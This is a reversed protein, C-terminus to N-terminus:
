TTVPLFSTKLWDNVAACYVAGKDRSISAQCWQCLYPAKVSFRITTLKTRDFLCGRIEQHLQLDPIHLSYLLMRQIVRLVIKRAMDPDSQSLPQLDTTGIVIGKRDLTNWAYLGGPLPLETIALNIGEPQSAGVQQNYRNMEEQFRDCFELRHETRFSRLTSESQSRGEWHRWGNAIGIEFFPQHRNQRVLLDVMEHTYFQSLIFFVRVPVRQKFSSEGPEESKHVHELIQAQSMETEIADIQHELDDMMREIRIKQAEDISTLLSRNAAEYEQILGNKLDELARRKYDPIPNSM